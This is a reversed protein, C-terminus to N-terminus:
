FWYLFLHTSITSSKNFIIYWYIKSNKLWWRTFKLYKWINDEFNVLKRWFFLVTIKNWRKSKRRSLNKTCKLNKDKIYLICIHRDTRWSWPQNSHRRRLSAINVYFSRRPKSKIKRSTHLKFQAPLPDHNKPNIQILKCSILIKM